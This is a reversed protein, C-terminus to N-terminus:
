LEGRRQDGRAEEGGWAGGWARAPREGRVGRLDAGALALEVDSVAHEAGGDGGDEALRAGRGWGGWVRGERRRVGGVGRGSVWRFSVGPVFGKFGGLDPLEELRVGALRHHNVQVVEVLEAAAGVM